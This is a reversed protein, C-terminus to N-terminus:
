GGSIDAGYLIRDQYRTFFARVKERSQGMLYNLASSTEVAFHSGTWVGPSRTSM